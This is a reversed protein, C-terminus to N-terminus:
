NQDVGGGGLGQRDEEQSSTEESLNGFKAKYMELRQSLKGNEEKLDKRRGELGKVRSMLLPITESEMNQIRGTLAQNERQHRMAEWSAKAFSRNEESLRRNDARLMQILAFNSDNSSDYKPFKTQPPDRYQYPEIANEDAQEEEPKRKHLQAPSAQTPPVQCTLVSPVQRLPSVYWHSPQRLSM